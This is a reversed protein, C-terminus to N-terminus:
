LSARDFAPAIMAPACAWRPESERAREMTVQAYMSPDGVFWSWPLSKETHICTRTPFTLLRALFNPHRCCRTATRSLSHLATSSARTCHVHRWGGPSSEKMVWWHAYPDTNSPEGNGVLTGDALYWQQRGGPRVGLWINSTKNWLLLKTEVDVQETFSNYSVLNGGLVQCAAQHTAFSATSSNFVYCTPTTSAYIAGPRSNPCYRTADNPPPCLGYSPQV